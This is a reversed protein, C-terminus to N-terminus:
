GGPGGGNAFITHGTVYSAAESVVFRVVAAIEEPRGARGLPVTRLFAAAREAGIVDFSEQLMETAIPGPAVANVRIGNVGEEKALIRTMAELAVKSVTYAGYTAPLRQTVNSTINVINGGGQARMIPLVAQILHLAGDVNVGWVRAWEAYPTDGIKLGPVHTGANNVLADIRGFEAMARAIIAGAEEASAVDGRV